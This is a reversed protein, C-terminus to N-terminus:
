TQFNTKSIMDEFDAFSQGTVVINVSKTNATDHINIINGGAQVDVFQSLTSQHGNWGLATLLATADIKDSDLANFDTIRDQDPSAFTGIDGAGWVFTDAGTGGTLIDNGAGGRLIDDGAAGNLTDNGAGGYITDNGATGAKGAWVSLDMQATKLTSDNGVKAGTTVDTEYTFATIGIQNTLKGATATHMFKLENLESQTLGKLEWASTTANWSARTSDMATTGIFFQVGAGDPFGTLTLDTREIHADVVSPNNNNIVVPDDMAANLRLDILDGAFGFSMTPNLEIGTANPVIVFEFPLDHITAATSGAEQTVINLKLGSNQTGAIGAPLTGSWNAPAQIWIKPVTTANPATPVVWLGEGANNALAESGANGYWVTFGTPLGEIYVSKITEIPDPLLTGTWAVETFKNAATAAAGNHETGNSTVLIDPPTNTHNVKLVTQNHSVEILTDVGNVLDPNEKNRAYVEFPIDGSDYPDTPRYELGTVLKSGPADVPVVYYSGAPIGAPVSTTTSLASGNHYLTGPVASSDIKIYVVGDVVVWDGAVDKGNTVELSIPINNEEEVSAPANITIAGEDTVPYLTIRSDADVQVWFGANNQLTVTVDLDWNGMGGMSNNSNNNADVPPVVRIEALMDNLATQLNANPQNQRTMTWLVITEGNEEVETRTLRNNAGDVLEVGDGLKTRITVTVDHHTSTPNNSIDITGSVVTNLNINAGDEPHTPDLPMVEITPLTQPVTGAFDASLWWSISDSIVAGATGDQTFTTITIETPNIDGAQSGVVFDVYKSVPGNMTATPNQVIWKGNGAFIAGSVTVGEPVGEIVIGVIRESGDYDGGVVLANGPQAPKTVDFNVRVSGDTTMHLINPLDAGTGTSTGTTTNILGRIVDMPDTVERFHLTHNASDIRTSPNLQTTSGLAPNATDSVQYQINNITIDGNYNVPGKVYVNNVDAANFQYYEVGGVNVKHAVEADTYTYNGTSGSRVYLTLDGNPTNKIQDVRIRVWDVVEDTDNGTEGHYVPRFDIKSHTYDDEVVDSTVNLTAEVSPVVEFVVNKPAFFIESNNDNETVVPQVTFAVRGSFNPPTKIKIAGSDIDQPRISWLRAEGTGSGIIPGAGELDFGDPLGTIRLTLTESGDASTGSNKVSNLEGSTLGDVLDKLLILNKGGAGAGGVTDLDSEVYHNGVAVTRDTKDLDPTDPVGQLTIRIDLPHQIQTVSTYAPDVVGPIYLTDVAEADVKLTFENNSDKPPVMELPLNSKFDNIVLRLKGANAPDAELYANPNHAPDSSLLLKTGNYYIETGIGAPDLPDMPINSVKINFTEDTDSSFPKINLKIKNNVDDYGHGAETRDNRGQDEYAHIRADVGVTVEEAVPLVILNKLWAVGSTEYATPTNSDEDYDRTVAQVKIYVEGSFNLPSKFQVTDLDAVPIRVGNGGSAGGGPVQFQAGTIPELSTIANTVPDRVVRYATLAAFTDEKNGNTGGAGTGDENYWPSKFNFSDNPKHLTFWQDEQAVTTLLPDDKNAPNYTYTHDPNMTLDDTGPQAPHASTDNNANNANGDTNRPRWNAPNDGNTPFLPNGSPDDRGGVVGPAPYYEFSEPVARVEVAITLSTDKPASNGHIANSDTSNVIVNFDHDLSSHAPPLIQFADLVAERAVQDSTGNFTIVYDNDIGDPDLAVWAGAWTGDNTPPILKWDAPIDKITVSNMREGHPNTLVTYLADRDSVQVGALFNVATDEWTWPDTTNNVDGAVPPVNLNLWITNNATNAESPVNPTPNQNTTGTQWVPATAPNSDHDYYFGDSDRDHTNITIRIDDIEGSFDQGAAIRIESFSTETGTQGNTGSRSSITVSEGENLVRWNGNGSISSHWVMIPGGSGNPNSITISRVESGDRDTYAADIVPNLVFYKDENLTVTAHRNDTYAMTYNPNNSPDSDGRAAGMSVTAGTSTGATVFSPDYVLSADDTVARVSVQITSTSTAGQGLADDSNNNPTTGSGWGYEAETRIAGPTGTAHGAPYVEYSTATVDISFNEHRDAGPKARIAQYDAETMYITNPMGLTIGAHHYTHDVQGMADVIVINYTKDGNGATSSPTYDTGGANTLTAGNNTYHSGTAVGNPHAGDGKLTLTIVGLREPNDGLAHNVGTVDNDTNDKIAPKVLNLAVSTDEDTFVNQVTIVPADNSVPIVEMNVTFTKSGNDTTTTYTFTDTGSFDGKPYYTITGNVNVKAYGYETEYAKVGNTVEAASLINQAVGNVFVQTNAPVPTGATGPNGVANIVTNANTGGKADANTNFTNSHQTGSPPVYLDEYVKQSIPNSPGDDPNDDIVIVTFNIEATDGDGDVVQLGKFPIDLEDLTAHNLARILTFTYSVVSTAPDVNLTVTFVPENATNTATITHGNNSITFTLNNEAQGGNAAPRDWLNLADITDQTFKVDATTLAGKDAGFNVDLTHTSSLPNTGTGDWPETGTALYKEDYEPVVTPDTATPGDDLFQFRDGIDIRTTTTDGDGDTIRGQLYLVGDAISLRDVATVGDSGVADFEDPDTVDPHSVPRSQRLTVGNGNITIRIAELGNPDPNGGSGVRGIVINADTPDKYLYIAQGTQTDILGSDSGASTIELTKVIAGAGDAGYNATPTALSPNFANTAFNTDTATHGIGTHHQGTGGALASDDVVLTPITATNSLTPVDDIIQIRIGQAQTATDGDLDTLVVEFNEFLQGQAATANDNSTGATPATHTRADTLEYTYEVTGVGTTPNYTYGTITLIGGTVGAVVQPLLIGAEIDLLQQHTFTTGSAGNVRITEVGDPSIFDFSGTTKEDDNTAIAGVSGTADLHSEYVIQSDTGLVLPGTTGNVIADPINITLTAITDDGDSDVLTYTFVDTVGGKTNGARTYTYSGDPNLVLTGYEGQITIVGNADVTMAANNAAPDYDATVPNSSIADKVYWDTAPDNSNADNQDAGKSDAGTTPNTTGVGTVVNGTAERTYVPNAPVTNDINLTDTDNRAVPEDDMITISLKGNPDYSGPTPNTVPDGNPNGNGGYVRVPVEDVFQTDTAGAHTDNDIPAKLTYTYSIRGETANGIYGNLVLTGEDTDITVTNTTTLAQIQTFTLSVYKTTALPDSNDGIIVHHINDTARVLIGTAASSGSTVANNTATANASGGVLDEESVAGNTINTQANHIRGHATGDNNAGTHDQATNGNDTANLQHQTRATIIYDEALETDLADAEVKVRVEFRPLTAPPNADDYAPITPLAFEGGTTPVVATTWAGWTGGDAALVRYEITTTDTGLTATQNSLGIYVTTPSTSHNSVEVTHVIYRVEPQGTLPDIVAAGTLPDYVAEAMEGGTITAIPRDDDHPQLPDTPDKPTTPDIPRIPNAPDAPDVTSPNPALSGDDVITGTGSGNVVTPTGGIDLTTNAALPNDQYETVVSINYVESGEHIQDVTSDIFVKFGDLHQGQPVNVIFTGNPLVTVPVLAGIVNGAADVWGISVNPVDVDAVPKTPDTFLTATGNSLTVTVQTTGQKIDNSLQVWHSLTEGEYVADSTVFAVPRDDDHYKPDEPDHAAPDNPDFPQKPNNPDIPRNPDNPDAPDVTSPNPSLSGDDVITGTGTGNVVSPVGHVEISTNPALPADQYQTQVEITYQEKGEYVSDVSSKVRVQFGNLHKSSSDLTVNFSLDTGTVNPTVTTWTVGDFSYEIAPYSPDNSLDSSLDAGDTALNGDKLTVTVTTPTAAPDKVDNTVKVDHYLYAGEHVADSSVFAVPRDDDHAKNPDNPLRPDNPDIPRNPDLPDAPVTPNDKPNTTQGNVPPLASGDDVITGTGTGNIPTAPAGHISVPTGNTLPTDQHQTKVEVTYQETNELVSDVKSTVRIQFGNTHQATGNLPVDFSGDPNFSTVAIWTTGDLTYEVIPNTGTKALDTLIEATGDKLLVNVTTTTTSDNSVKITHYLKDGEYVADDTVYAVPRDDDHPQNPDNPLRPNNPDIPRNPDLPDAPITPNDTTPSVDKPDNPLRSGDDVITGKGIGNVTTPTGHVDITVGNTLPADQHQTKVEINYFEPGEYRTDGKSEVIVQFGYVHDHTGTLPVNFSGDPNFSTILTESGPIFNGNADTFRVWVNGTLDSALDATAGKDDTLKVNVSTQYKSDNSVQVLHVLKEGEYVADNSVFAVPRDDDHYNPTGPPLSPNGPPIVPVKPQNPDIPHNPDNPDNPDVKSPNKPLSGDDVITGTGTGNVVTDVGHVKVTEGNNLPTAQHQTKVEVTYHEKGEYQPDKKSEVRIEFGQTHQTTGNLDVDFSGDSKFTVPTWSGGPLRVWVTPNTTNNELDKLLEAGNPGTGDKLVVNVTTTTTSDNSVKIAHYLYDGEYQADNNVFAVPRDDDHFKTPINPVKPENPDIPRNPDNPYKPDEKSPNSDLDNILPSGDDVITGTGTGGNTVPVQQYQTKVSIDYVEPGEYVNDSKSDVRVQFGDIHEKGPKVTVDFTGDARVTKQEWPKWNGNEDKFRVYVTGIDTNAGSVNATDKELKVTVITDYKSDNSLKVNHVLPDGEYVKDSDVTAYPRDDDHYNPDNPHNPNAPPTYPTKPNNPDIPKEPDQPTGPNSPNKPLSGDDVITGTGTGNVSTGNVVTGNTLPHAQYETKVQITYQEKGEYQTDKTSEVKVEFGELHKGPEVTVNFSGDPNFSTIETWTNDNPYRIYVKSTTDTSLEATGDVLKVNVSTNTVSDNSLTVKHILHQGEYVADSTVVAVPRDDDHYNPDEPDNPDTPPTTPVKPEGPKSPNEPHEGGDLITGTGHGEPLIERQYETHATINYTEKGEYISDVTSPVRVLFSTHNSPLEVAFSGDTSPNAVQWTTGGDISYEIIGTDVGLTAHGIGKGSETVTVIVDYPSSNKKSVTVTHVLYQGEYKVVSNVAAVPPTVVGLGKWSGGGMTHEQPRYSSTSSPFELGMSSPANSIRNLMLPSIGDAVLNEGMRVVQVFRHGGQTAEPDGEFSEGAIEVYDKGEKKFVRGDDLRVVDNQQESENMQQFSKAFNVIKDIDSNSEVLLSNLSFNGDNNILDKGHIEVVRGNSLQLVVNSEESLHLVDKAQLKAGKKLILKKNTNSFRWVDGDVSIVKVTTNM